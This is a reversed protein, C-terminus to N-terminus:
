KVSKQHKLLRSSIYEPTITVNKDWANYCIRELETRLDRLQKNIIVSHTQLSKVLQTEVDWKNKDIRLGTSSMYLSGYSVSFRIPVNILDVRPTRTSRIFTNHNMTEKNHCVFM